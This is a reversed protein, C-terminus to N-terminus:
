GPPRSAATSASPCATEFAFTPDKGIFYYSCTHGCEVTGDKVADLVGPGPVIEGAAFVQIQFKGGTAAAGAQRGRRRRRLHHRPEEPLQLRLAVQHHAARGGPRPPPQALPLASAPKRSFSRREMTDGREHQLHLNNILGATLFVRHQRPPRAKRAAPSAPAQMFNDFRNEAVAFWQLQDDRFKKWNDYIKKFKPNKAATEDYLEHAAKYGAAMM